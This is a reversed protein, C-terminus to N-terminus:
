CAMILVSGIVVSVGDSTCRRMESDLVVQDILTYPGAVLFVDLDLSELMEPIAGPVNVGAGIASVKRDARLDRLAAYGSKILANFHTDFIDGSGHYGRDLDHVFLIDIQSVGLRQISDEYSRIIGDYSDDFRVTFPLPAAWPGVRDETTRPKDSPTLLRGVKTSLVYENRVKTRLFRGMRHESLVLGYWPSTDFFRVGANWAATLAGDAQTDDVATDLNGIPAGGM